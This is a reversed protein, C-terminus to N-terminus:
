PPITFAPRGSTADAMCGEALAILEALRAKGGFPALTSEDVDIVFLSPDTIGRKTRAEVENALWNAAALTETLDDRERHRTDGDGVHHNAVARCIEPPIGWLGLLYGGIEAHTIGLRRLEVDEIPCDKETSERDIEDALGPLKTLLVLRGIDHM